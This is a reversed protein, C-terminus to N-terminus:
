YLFSIIIPLISLRSLLLLNLQPLELICLQSWLLSSYSVLNLKLFYLNNIQGSVTASANTRCSESSTRHHSLNPNLGPRGKVQCDLWRSKGTYTIGRHCYGMAVSGFLLQLFVGNERINYYGSCTLFSPRSPTLDCRKDWERIVLSGTSVCAAVDPSPVSTEPM